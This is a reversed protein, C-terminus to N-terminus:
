TIVVPLEDKCLLASMAEINPLLREHRQTQGLEKVETGIRELLGVMDGHIVAVPANVTDEQQNWSLFVDRIEDGSELFKWRALFDAAEREILHELFKLGRAGAAFLRNPISRQILGGPRM